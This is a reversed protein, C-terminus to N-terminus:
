GTGPQLFDIIENATHLIVQSSGSLEGALPVILRADPSFRINNKTKEM